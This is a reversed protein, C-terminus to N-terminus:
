AEFLHFVLSCSKIELDTPFIPRDKNKTINLVYTNLYNISDPENFKTLKYAVPGFVAINQRYLQQTGININKLTGGYTNVGSLDCNLTYNVLSPINTEIIGYIQVITKKEKIMFSRFSIENMNWHQDDYTVAFGNLNDGNILTNSIDLNLTVIQNKSTEMNDTNFYIKGFSISSGPISQNGQPGIEEVLLDQAYSYRRSASM